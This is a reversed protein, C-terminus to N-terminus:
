AILEFNGGSAQARLRELESYVVTGACIKWEFRAADFVSVRTTDLEDYEGYSHFNPNEAYELTFEILRGGDASEKFGDKGLGLFLNRSTFINDTPKKGIKREWVSAALEGLNPDAM